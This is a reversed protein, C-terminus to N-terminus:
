AKSKKVPPAQLKLERLIEEEEEQECADYMADELVRLKARDALVTRTILQSHLTCPLAPLALVWDFVDLASEATSFISRRIAEAAVQNCHVREELHDFDRNITAQCLELPKELIKQVYDDQKLRQVMRDHIKQDSKCANEPAKRLSAKVFCTYFLRGESKDGTWSCSVPMCLQVWEGAWVVVGCIERTPASDVSDDWHVVYPERSGDNWDLSWSVIQKRVLPDPKNEDLYRERGAEFDSTRLVVHRQETM